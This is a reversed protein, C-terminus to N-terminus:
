TDLFTLLLPEIGFAIKTADYLAKGKVALDEYGACFYSGRSESHLSQGTSGLHTAVLLEVSDDMDSRAGYVWRLLDKRGAKTLADRVESMYKFGSTDYDYPDWLLGREPSVCVDPRPLSIPVDVSCFTDWKSRDEYGEETMPRVVVMMVFLGGEGSDEWDGGEPFKVLESNV